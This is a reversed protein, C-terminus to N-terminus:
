VHDTALVTAQSNSKPAVQSATARWATVLHSQHRCRQRELRITTRRVETVHMLYSGTCRLFYKEKRLTVGHSWTLARQVLPLSTSTFCARGITLM